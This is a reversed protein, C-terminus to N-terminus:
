HSSPITLHSYVFNSVNFTVFTCIHFLFTVICQFVISYSNNILWQKNEVILAFPFFIRVIFYSNLSSSISLLRACFLFMLCVCPIPKFKKVFFSLMPYRDNLKTFTFLYQVNTDLEWCLYHINCMLIRIEFNGIRSVFCQIVFNFIDILCFNLYFNPNWDGWIILLCNFKLKQSEMRRFWM